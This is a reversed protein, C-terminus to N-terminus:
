VVVVIYKKERENEYIEDLIRRACLFLSFFESKNKTFFLLVRFSSETRFNKLPTDTSTKCSLLLVYVVIIISYYYHFIDSKLLTRGFCISNQTVPQQNISQNISKQNQKQMSHVPLVGISCM